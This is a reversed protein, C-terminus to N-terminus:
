PTDRFGDQFAIRSDRIADFGRAFHRFGCERGVSQGDMNDRRRMPNRRELENLREAKQRQPVPREQKEIPRQIEPKINSTPDDRRRGVIDASVRWPWCATSAVASRRPM